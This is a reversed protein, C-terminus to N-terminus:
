TLREPTKGSTVIQAVQRVHAHWNLCKEYLTRSALSFRLYTEREVLLTRIAEAYDASTADPAMVLGSTKHTVYEKIGGVGSVVSPLGFAAADCIALSGCDARSPVLLVHSTAYLENLLSRDKTVDKRLYGYTLIDPVCVLRGVGLTSADLPMPRCLIRDPVGIVKLNADFNMRRLTVVTDVAVDLGKRYPERGVFLVNCSNQDRRNIMKLVSDYDPPDLVNAGPLVAHVKEAYPPYEQRASFAAWSTFFVLWTAKAFAMRESAFGSEFTEEALDNRSAGPYSGTYQNWTSDHIIVIPVPTELFAADPPHLIFVADADRHCELISNSFCARARLLDFDRGFQYKRGLQRYLSNKAEASSSTQPQLPAAIVTRRAVKKLANTFFYPVGSWARPNAVNHSSVVIVKNLLVTLVGVLRVVQFCSLRHVYRGDM